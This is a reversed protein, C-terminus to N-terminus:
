QSFYSDVGQFNQQEIAAANFVTLSIPVDRANEERRQATVTIEELTDNAADAAATSTAATATAAAADAALAGVAHSAAAIAAAGCLILRIRNRLRPNSTQTMNDGFAGINSQVLKGVKGGRMM